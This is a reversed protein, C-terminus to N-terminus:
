KLKLLISTADDRALPLVLVLTSCGSGVNFFLTIHISGLLEAEFMSMIISRGAEVFTHRNHYYQRDRGM